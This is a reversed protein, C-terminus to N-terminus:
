RIECFYCKASKRMYFVYYGKGVSYVRRLTNNPSVSQSKVPISKDILDDYSFVFMRNKGEGIKGVPVLFVSQNEPTNAMEAVLESGAEGASLLKIKSVQDDPLMFLGKKDKSCEVPYVKNRNLYVDKDKILIDTLPQYGNNKYSRISQVDVLDFRREHSDQDLLTIYPKQDNYKQYTIVGLTGNVDDLYPTQKHIAVEPNLPLRKQADIDKNLISRTKGDSTKMRVMEGLIKEIIQGKYSHGDKTEIVDLIGNIALPDREKYEISRIDTLNFKHEIPTLCVFRVIAGEEFVFVSQEENRFMDKLLTMTLSDAAWAGKQSRMSQLDALTIKSLAITDKGVMNTQEEVWEKWPTKLGKTSFSEETRRSVFAADVTAYTREVAFTVSKSPVQSVIHGEVQLGGKFSLKELRDASARSVGIIALAAIIFIHRSM